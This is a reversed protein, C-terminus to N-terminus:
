VRSFLRHRPWIADMTIASGELVEREECRALHVYMAVIIPFMALTILTPWQFLVGLMITM